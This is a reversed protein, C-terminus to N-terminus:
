AIGGKSEPLEEDTTFTTPLVDCVCGDEHDEHVASVMPTQQPTQTPTTVPQQAPAPAGAVVKEGPKITSRIFTVKNLLDFWFPAGLMAALITMLLGLVPGWFTNWAGDSVKENMYFSAGGADWGM